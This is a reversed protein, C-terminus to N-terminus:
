NRSPFIGYLAICYNVALYPQMNEHPLGGGASGFIRPEMAVLNTATDSYAQGPGSAGFYSLSTPAVAATGGTAGYLVHNHQPIQNVNLTVTSAGDVEGLDRNTLGLGQGWHMVGREQINPLAFTQQGDGGYTTGLIAFLAENQAISQLQGNCFAYNRPAFTFGFILIQGIFPQTM